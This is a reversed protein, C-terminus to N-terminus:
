WVKKKYGLYLLFGMLPILLMVEIKVPRGYSLDIVSAIICLLIALLPLYFYALKQSEM